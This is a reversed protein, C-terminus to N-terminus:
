LTSQSHKSQDRDVTSWIGLWRSHWNCLTSTGYNEPRSVLLHGRPDKVIGVKDCSAGTPKFFHISEVAKDMTPPSRKMNEQSTLLMHKMSNRASRSVGQSEDMKWDAHLQSEGMEKQTGFITLVMRLPARFAHSRLPAKAAERLSDDFFLQTVSQSPQTWNTFSLQLSRM